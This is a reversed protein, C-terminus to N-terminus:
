ESDPWLTTLKSIKCSFFGHLTHPSDMMRPSARGMEERGGPRCLAPLLFVICPCALSITLGCVRHGGHLQRGGGSRSATVAMGHRRGHRGAMGGAMGGAQRGGAM